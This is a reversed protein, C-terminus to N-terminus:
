VYKNQKCTPMEMEKNVKMVFMVNTSLEYSYIKSLLFIPNDSASDLRDPRHDSLNELSSRVKESHSDEIAEVM